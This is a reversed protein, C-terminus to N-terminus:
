ERGFSFRIGPFMRSPNASSVMDLRWYETPPTISNRSHVTGEALDYEEDEIWWAKNEVIAFLSALERIGDCM